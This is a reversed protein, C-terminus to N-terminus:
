EGKYNNCFEIVRQPIKFLGRIWTSVTTQDANVLNGFKEQTLDNAALFIKLDKANQVQIKM